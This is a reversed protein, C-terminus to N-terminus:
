LLELEGKENMKAVYILGKDTWIAGFIVYDQNLNKGYNEEERITRKLDGWGSFRCYQRATSYPFESENWKWIFEDCLEEITDSQKIVREKAIIRYGKPNLFNKLKINFMGEINGQKEHLEFVGENTRIYRM